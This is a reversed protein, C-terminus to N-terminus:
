CLMNLVRRSHALVISFRLVGGNREITVGVGGLLEQGGTKAGQVGEALLIAGACTGWVPKDKVFTKLPELLGALRALFRL